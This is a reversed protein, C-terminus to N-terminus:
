RSTLSALRIMVFLLIIGEYYSFQAGASLVAATGSVMRGAAPRCGRGPTTGPVPM